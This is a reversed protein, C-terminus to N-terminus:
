HLPLLSGKVWAVYCSQQLSGPGSQYTSLGLWERINRHTLLVWDCRQFTPIRKFPFVPRPDGFRNISWWFSLHM